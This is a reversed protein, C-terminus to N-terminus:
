QLRDVPPDAHRYWRPLSASLSTRQLAEAGGELPGWMKDNLLAFPGMTDLMIAALRLRNADAMMAYQDAQYPMQRGGSRLWKDRLFLLSLVHTNMYVEVVLSMVDQHQLLPKGGRSTERCYQVLNEALAQQERLDREAFAETDVASHAVMWGDGEDGIRYELPVRVQDMTVSRQSRQAVTEVEAISIGPLNAPILFAGLRRRSRASPETVALTCLYTPLGPGGHFVQAGSVIYFDGDKVASSAVSGPDALAEWDGLLNWATADGRLLAPIFRQRQGEGGWALIAAAVQRNTEYLPPIGRSDLEERVVDAHAPTLGGGGYATPWSPAAWGRDVLRHQFARAWEQVPQSLVAGEVSAPSYPPRHAELWSRVEKRFAAMEPGERVEFDM